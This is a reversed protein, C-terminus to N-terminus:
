FQAMFADIREQAVGAAVLRATLITQSEPPTVFMFPASDGDVARVTCWQSSAAVLATQYCPLVASTGDSEVEMRADLTMLILPRGNTAMTAPESAAIIREVVFHDDAILATRDLGEFGYSIQSLTGVTSAAYDL